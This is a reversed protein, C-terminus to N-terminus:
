GKKTTTDAGDSAADATPAPKPAPAPPQDAPRATKTAAAPAPAPTPDAAPAPVDALLGGAALVAAEEATVDIVVDPQMRTRVEPM